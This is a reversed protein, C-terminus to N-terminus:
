PPLVALYNNHNPFCPRRLWPQNLWQLQPSSFNAKPLQLLKPTRTLCLRYLQGRSTPWSRVQVVQCHLQRHGKSCKWSSRSAIIAVMMKRLQHWFRSKSSKRSRKMKKRKSCWPLLLRKFDSNKYVDRPSKLLSFNSMKCTTIPLPSLARTMMMLAM